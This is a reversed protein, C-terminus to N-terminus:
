IYLLRNIFYLKCKLKNIDGPYVEMYYKYMKELNEKIKEKLTKEDYINFIELKYDVNNDKKCSKFPYNNINNNINNTNNSINNIISNKSSIILPNNDNNENITNNIQFISPNNSINFIKNNISLLM